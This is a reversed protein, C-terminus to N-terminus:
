IQFISVAARREKGCHVLAAHLHHHHHHHGHQWWAGHDVDVWGGVACVDATWRCSASASASASPPGSCGICWWCVPFPVAPGLGVQPADGGQCPLLFFFTREDAKSELGM